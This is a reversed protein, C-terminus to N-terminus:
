PLTATPTTSPTVPTTAPTPTSTGGVAPRQPIRVDIYTLSTLRPDALIAAVAAWKASGNHSTGFRLEIGGRMTVVVGYDTSVTARDILPRLPAPATGIVLAEALPEGSLRGSDGLPNVSLEPVRGAVKVGPLLSGDAAVAVNRDGDSAVLVPHRETVHITLGHPFSADASLSAVTPLGRVASELRDTQVNLTTMGQAAHTLAGVIQGRDSSTVGEVKVDRVAVLSSDRFWAFYAIALAAAVGALLLGRRRLAGRRLPAGRRQL